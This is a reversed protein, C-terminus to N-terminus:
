CANGEGEGKQHIDLRFTPFDQGHVVRCLYNLAALSVIVEQLRKDLHKQDPRLEAAVDLLDTCITKLDFYTGTGGMRLVTSANTAGASSNTM